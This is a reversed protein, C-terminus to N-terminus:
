WSEPLAKWRCTRGVKGWLRPPGSADNLFMKPVAKLPEFCRGPALLWGKALRAGPSGELAFSSSAKSTWKAHHADEELNFPLPMTAM